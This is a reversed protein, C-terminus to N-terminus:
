FFVPKPEAPPKWIVFGCRQESRRHRRSLTPLSIELIPFKLLPTPSEQAIYRHNHGHIFSQFQFDKLFQELPENASLPRHLDRPHKWMSRHTLFHHNQARQDALVDRAWTIQHAEIRGPPNWPILSGKHTSNLSVYVHDDIRLVADFDRHAVVTPQQVFPKHLYTSYRQHAAHRGPIWEGFIDGLDHNGPTIIVTAHEILSILFDHAQQFQNQFGRQVFDGTIIIIDNLLSYQRLTNLMEKSQISFHIDSCLLMSFIIY